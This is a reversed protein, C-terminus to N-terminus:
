EVVLRQYRNRSKKVYRKNAQLHELLHYIRESQEPENLSRALGEASFHEDPHAQLHEIVRQQLALVAKAANKGAEVGPQHYANIDILEAYLGVAREYLAILGGLTRADFRRCELTLSQRGTEALVERTGLYFGLLYDGSTVKDDVEIQRTRAPRPVDEQVTIFNVFFNNLGERLQQVFAHQDTSGKNGYVAIGQHVENGQRDKAKGLSEMVLQQLYRSFLVLRDKYPLVVMDKEGQGNTAHYWLGALMAAPNQKTVRTRTARDMTAAGELFGDGDLGQLAMPVLGVASTVSTRGGVWDWMAFRQLWGETQAQQDLTSGEGTIAVARKSFDLGQQHMAQQTVLMGNRTEATGGSKSIVLVLTSKLRNKLQTLVRQMGDPDTNDLFHMRLKDRTSGLADAVLQPGLASGGIGILLLDTFRPQEPPRVEKAHVDAAFAKAQRQMGRIAEALDKRPALSPARLWYHGVMRNEDPNAIGGAELRTMAEFAEQMALNMRHWFAEPVDMRSPDLAIGLDPCDCRQEEYQKLPDHAPM